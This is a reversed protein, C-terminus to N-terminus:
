EDAQREERLLEVVRRAIAEMSKSHIRVTGTDTARQHLEDRVVNRTLHDEFAGM